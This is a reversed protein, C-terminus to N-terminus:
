NMVAHVGEKIAIKAGELMLNERKRKEEEKTVECEEDECGCPPWREKDEEDVVCEHDDKNL